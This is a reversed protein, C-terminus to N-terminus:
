GRLLQARKLAVCLAGTVVTSVLMEAVANIGVFTVAFVLFSQGKMTDTLYQTNGFLLFLAGM